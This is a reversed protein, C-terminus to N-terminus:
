ENYSGYPTGDKRLHPKTEGITLTLEVNATGESVVVEKSVAQANPAWSAVVHKGAPLNDLHFFGDKGVRTYTKGPVVLIFGIMQPHINCYVSVLGPQQMVVSKSQGQNYSGLDFSNGPSLSFVNHFIPDSNPFDVRTGREVVLINPVFAKGKQSMSATKGGGAEGTDLYVWASEPSGGRVVVRGNISGRVDARPPPPPPETPTPRRRGASTDQPPPTVPTPAVPTPAPPPMAVGVLQSLARANDTQLKVIQEILVRQREVEDRLREFEARTVRGRDRSSTQAGVAGQGLLLAALLAALSWLAFRHAAM